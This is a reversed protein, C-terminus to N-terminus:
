VMRGRRAELRVVLAACRSEMNLDPLATSHVRRLLPCGDDLRNLPEFGRAETSPRTVLKKILTVPSTVRGKGTKSRERQHSRMALRLGRQRLPRDGLTVSSQSRVSAEALCLLLRREVSDHHRSEDLPSARSQTILAKADGAL